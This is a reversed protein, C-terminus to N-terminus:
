RIDELSQALRDVEDFAIPRDMHDWDEEEFNASLFSVAAKLIEMQRDSFQM